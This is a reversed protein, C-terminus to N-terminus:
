PTSSLRKGGTGRRKIRWILDHLPWTFVTMVFRGAAFKLIYLRKNGVNFNEGIFKEHMKVFRWNNIVVWAENRLRRAAHVGGRDDTIVFNFCLAHPCSGLTYGHERASLQFDTEERWFNVRYIDNYRVKRFVEAKALMPGALIPEVQDVGIDMSTEIEITKMNVYSGKLKNTRAISEAATETDRRFINRGCMVDAGLSAMHSSLTELFHDSLELDDEAMFIYERTAENIGRNRSYPIGRNVGNDLYRVVDSDRCYAELFEVTGDTSGDVVIIVEKVEDQSLFSPLVRKISALRDKTPIIVSVEM